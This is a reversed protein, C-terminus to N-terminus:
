ISCLTSKTGPILVEFNRFVLSHYLLTTANPEYGTARMAKRLMYLMGLLAMVRQNLLSLLEVAGKQQTQLEKEAFEHLTGIM